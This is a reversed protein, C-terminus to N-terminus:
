KSCIDFMLPWKQWKESKVQHFGMEMQLQGTESKIHSYFEEAPAM